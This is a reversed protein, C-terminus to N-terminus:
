AHGGLIRRRRFRVPHSLGRRALAVRGIERTLRAEEDPRAPQVGSTLTSFSPSMAVAATSISPLASLPHGASRWVVNQRTAFPPRGLGEWGFVLGPRADAYLISRGKVGQQVGAPLPRRRRSGEPSARRQNSICISRAKRRTMRPATGTAMPSNRTLRVKLRMPRPHLGPSPAHVDQKETETQDKRQHSRRRDSPATTM